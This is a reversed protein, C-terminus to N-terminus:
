FSAIMSKLRKEQFDSIETWPFTSHSPPSTDQYRLGLCHLLRATHIPPSPSPLPLNNLLLYSGKTVRM